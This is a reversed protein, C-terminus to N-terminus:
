GAHAKEKTKGGASLLPPGLFGPSKPDARHVTRRGSQKRREHRIDMRFMRIYRDLQQLLLCDFQQRFDEGAREVEREHARRFMGVPAEFESGTRPFRRRPREPFVHGRAVSTRKAQRGPPGAASRARDGSADACGRDSRSATRPRPASVSSRRLRPRFCVITLRTAARSPAAITGRQVERM